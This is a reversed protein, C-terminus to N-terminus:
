IIATQNQEQGMHYNAPSLGFRQKTKEKQSLKGQWDVQPLLDHRKCCVALSLFFFFRDAM